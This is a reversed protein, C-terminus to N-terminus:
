NMDAYSEYTARGVYALEDTQAKQAALARPDLPVHSQQFEYCSCRRGSSGVLRRAQTLLVNLLGWIVELNGRDPVRCRPPM